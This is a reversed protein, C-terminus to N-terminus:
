DPPNSQELFADLAEKANTQLITLRGAAQELAVQFGDLQSRLSPDLDEAQRIHRLELLVYRLAGEAQQSAELSDLFWQPINRRRPNRPKMTNGGVTASHAAEGM